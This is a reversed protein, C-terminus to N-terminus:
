YLSKLSFITSIPFHHSPGHLALLTISFKFWLCKSLIFLNKMSNLKSGFGIALFSISLPYLTSYLCQVSFSITPNM